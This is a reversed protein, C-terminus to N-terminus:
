QKPTHLAQSHKLREISSVMVLKSRIVKNKKAYAQSSQQTGDSVQVIM